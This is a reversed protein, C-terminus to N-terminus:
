NSPMKYHPTYKISRTITKNKLSSDPTMTNFTFVGNKVKKLMFHRYFGITHGIM